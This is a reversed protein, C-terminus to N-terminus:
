KPPNRRSLNGSVGGILTIGAEYLGSPLAPGPTCWRVKGVRHGMGAIMADVADDLDCIKIHEDNRLPYETEIKLGSQSYNLILSPCSASDGSYPRVLCSEFCATRSSKRKEPM